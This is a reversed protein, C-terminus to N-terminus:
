WATLGHEQGYRSKAAGSKRFTCWWPCKCDPKRPIAKQARCAGGNDGFYFIFTNDLEGDERLMQILRGLEKDSQAIRKYFTAYTYRFLPTNPHYPLLAADPM